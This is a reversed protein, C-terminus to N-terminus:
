YRRLSAISAIGIILLVIYLAIFIGMIILMAKFYNSKSKKASSGFAWVFPMVFAAFPIFMILMTVIWEKVSMPEELENTGYMPQNQLYGNQMYGNQGNYPQQYMNQQNYSQQYINQQGYSQQYPNQQDYSQQGNNDQGGNFLNNNDM